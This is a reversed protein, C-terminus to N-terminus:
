SVLEQASSKNRRFPYKLQKIYGLPVPHGEIGYGSPWQSGPFHYTGFLRDLWPFHISFNVDIAEKEIGHHWHHFRPTVLLKEVLPFKWNLNAHVFTSYLYVVFIYGNVAAPIFGLVFMPIVTTARLILIELFHMRAGAIWDLNRASHHVAHFQWLWPVRHFARHVWYQVLDTLVMIAVFQVALPLGGVWARTTTLPAILLIGRAPIFTLFTLIQVLLSSVLFYFLDERWEERFIHQANRHAFIRELPVFLFGTFLIRLVFFDLGLYFPTYDKVAQTAASGGLMAALITASVGFTGLVKGPRLALSLASFAFATLLLIHLGVRFWSNEYLHHTEPISFAGPMRLAIVLGLGALGLVLGLVGSIWGSGFRRLGTPAELERRLEMRAAHLKSM